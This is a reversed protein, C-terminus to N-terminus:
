EGEKEKEIAIQSIFYIKELNKIGNLKNLNEIIYKIINEKEM